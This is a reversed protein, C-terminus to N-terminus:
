HMMFDMWKLAALIDLVGEEVFHRTMEGAEIAGRQEHPLTLNRLTLSFGQERVIHFRLIFKEEM